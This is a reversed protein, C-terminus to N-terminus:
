IRKYVYIFAVAGLAFYILWQTPVLDKLIEILWKLVAILANVAFKIFDSLLWLAMKPGVDRLLQFLTIEGEFYKDFSPKIIRRRQEVDDATMPKNQYNPNAAVVRFKGWQEGPKRPVLYGGKIGLYENHYLSRIYFQSDTTISTMDTRSETHVLVFSSAKKTEDDRKFEWDSATAIYGNNLIATLYKHGYQPILGPDKDPTEPRPLNAVIRMATPAIDPAKILQYAVSGSNTSSGKEWIPYFQQGRFVTFENKVETCVYDVGNQDCVLFLKTGADPQDSDSSNPNYDAIVIQQNRGQVDNVMSNSRAIGNDRKRTLEEVTPLSSDNYYTDSQFESVDYGKKSLNNLIRDYDPKLDNYTATDYQNVSAMYGNFQRLQRTINSPLPQPM